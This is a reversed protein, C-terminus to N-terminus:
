NLTLPCLSYFFWSCSLSLGVLLSLQVLFLIKSFSLIQLNTFIQFKLNEAQKFAEEFNFFINITQPDFTLRFACNKSPCWKYVFGIAIGFYSFSFLKRSNDYVKSETNQTCVWLTFM